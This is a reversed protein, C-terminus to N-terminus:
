QTQVIDENKFSWKYKYATKLRGKCCSSINAKNFGLEQTILGISYWEKIFNGNLDFQLVVKGKKIRSNKTSKKNLNVQRLKEKTELSLIKGKHSKSIQIKVDDPRRRGKLSKSIKDKHEQSQKYGLSGEGGATHNCLNGYLSIYYQEREVWNNCVEILEIIPKMNKNLLSFIWCSVHTTRNRKAKTIHGSLRKSLFQNTKGVYRTEKTEPDILRYIKTM